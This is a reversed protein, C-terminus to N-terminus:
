PAIFRRGADTLTTTRTAEDYAVLREAGIRTMMAAYHPWLEERAREDTEAVHGPSHVGIPLPDRGFQELSGEPQGARIARAQVLQERFQRGAQHPRAPHGISLPGAPVQEGYEAVLRRM